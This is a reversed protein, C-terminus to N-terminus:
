ITGFLDTQSDSNSVFPDGTTCLNPDQSTYCEPCDIACAKVISARAKSTAGKLSDHICAFTTPDAYPAFCGGYPGMTKRATVICKATCKAKSGVFKVLAKGAGTECKAEDKNPDTIPPFQASAASALLLSGLVTAMSGLHSRRM